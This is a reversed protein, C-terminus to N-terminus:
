RAVKTSESNMPTPVPPPIGPLDPWPKKKADQVKVICGKPGSVCGIDHDDAVLLLGGCESHWSVM